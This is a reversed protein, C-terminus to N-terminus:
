VAKNKKSLYEERESEFLFMPERDDIIKESQGQLLAGFDPAHEITRVPNLEANIEEAKRENLGMRRTHRDKKVKEIYEVPFAARTNGNWIATCIFTGDIHRVTVSEASHIDFAVAVEKGDVQILDESFYDNNFLKVWGRQAIRTVQPRFMDRLEVVSLRDIEAEPLLSERYEAPTFHKGDERQPLESHRHQTNYSEIEIEIADLLQNWSPLKALANQQVNNLPKNQNIANVASDIARSTIRATERDALKGNYTAFKRAIRAPIEKNLREIIGRAQPNGPIGTPHEIGLRPLIGTLPADLLKATEGAGNDSYYLLPVGHREMGYRLADAVAITNESLSLSWGVVFRTRGDIVLTIEPTFPRGHDPHQVKMKMSHGDGIWVGNVPMQSWDRKVYTQLATLASGTVRGRQRVLKPLKNLARHVAHISPIAQLMAPQDAYQQQWDLCFGEYAEAVTIGHTTRYNAMFMPMWRINEVPKAKNYGPALLALREAADKGRLYDLVWGNLSRVSLTREKGRRANAFSVCEQLQEPLSESQAKATIYKIASIRSLGAENELRLVEVVLAMRADATVRQDNNLVSVKNELIAPCKRMLDLEQTVRVASKSTKLSHKFGNKPAMLFSNLYRERIADQAMIPLSEIAYESGGGRGARSRSLWKASKARAAVGPRTEPLGPLCMDAIEQATYHTKLSIGHM